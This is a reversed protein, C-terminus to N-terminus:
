VLKIIVDVKLESKLRNRVENVVDEIDKDCEISKAGHLINAISINVTKKYMRQPEIVVPPKGADVPGVHPQPQPPNRKIIEAQIENFCMLKLRDSEEKMAIAQYFNNAHDLRDILDDYRGKFKDYLTRKIDEHKNLEDLVKNWDSEVVVRVPKCEEELLETFKAVFKDILSPLKHIDSYPEKSGVIKKMQEVLDIVEEDLVYTRNENYVGIKHVAKDFFEKQNSDFFKKVDVSDEAYELFLDKNNQLEDYFEKADHIKYIKELESKGNLLIDQGPYKSQKYYVLLENIKAIEDRSLDIFRRMLGDEDSPLATIGFIEKSLEKV